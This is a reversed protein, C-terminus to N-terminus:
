TQGATALVSRPRLMAEIDAPEVPRGFWWRRAMDCGPRALFSRQAETEVGEAVVEFTLASAMAITAAVVPAEDNPTEM